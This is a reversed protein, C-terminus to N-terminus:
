FGLVLSVSIRLPRPLAVFWEVVPVLVKLFSTLVPTIGEGLGAKFIQITTNLKQTQDIYNNTLAEYTKAAYGSADDETFHVLNDWIRQEARVLNSLAQQATVRGGLARQMEHLTQDQNSSSQYIERLQELLVDTDMFADESFGYQAMFKARVDDKKFQIQMQRYYVGADPTGMQDLVALHGALQEVEVGAQSAFGAAYRFWKALDQVEATSRDAALAQADIIRTTSEFGLSMAANSKIALNTADDYSMNATTALKLISIMSAQNGITEEGSAAVREAVQAADRATFVEGSALKMVDHQSMAGLKSDLSKFEYNVYM